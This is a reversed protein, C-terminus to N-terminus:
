RFLGVVQQAHQLGAELTEGLEGVRGLADRCLGRCRTAVDLADQQVPAVVVRHGTAVPGTAAAALHCGDVQDAREGVADTVVAARRVQATEVVLECPERRQQLRQGGVARAPFPDLRRNRFQLM